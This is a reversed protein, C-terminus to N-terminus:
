CVVMVKLEAPLSQANHVFDEHSYMKIFRAFCSGNFAEAPVPKGDMSVILHVISSDKVVVSLVM